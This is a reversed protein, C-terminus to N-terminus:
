EFSGNLKSDPLKFFANSVNNQACFKRGEKEGCEFSCICTQSISITFASKVAVTTYENIGYQVSRGFEERMRGTCHLALLLITHRPSSMPILSREGQPFEMHELFPLLLSRLLSFLRVDEAILVLKMTM